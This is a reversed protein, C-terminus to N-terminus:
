AKKRKLRRVIAHLDMRQNLAYFSYFICVITTTSMVTFSITSSSIFLALFCGVSLFLMLFLLHLTPATLRFGYRWRTLVISLAADICAACLAGYGLGNLGYYYYFLSLVVFTKANGWVTEIWFIYKKDGKAYAIYDMPFSLAKFISALGIYCILTRIVQFENTLLLSILLPATLILLMSLPTVILLVIETQQNVLLNAEATQKQIISSLRPYFDTAMATFIMSTYQMTILNAAQYYGVDTVSGVSSVFATVAYTTMSGVVTGITMVLGLQIIDHGEYWITRLSLREKESKQRRDRFSYYRMVLYYIAGSLIMAPVIGEIGWLYYIPVSILVGCLPPVVSCFALQKYRRLGQMVTMEGTGLISLMVSLSLLLLLPMYQYSGFSTQAILPSAVITLLLGFVAAIVFMSRVLRITAALVQSKSTDTSAKGATACDENVQSINRIASINIGLLAFQQITNAANTLLTMIGMGASHLILAVLKGRVLNILVGMLQASGFVATSGVIKRYSRANSM